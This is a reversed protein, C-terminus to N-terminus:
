QAAVLAKLEAKDADTLQRWESGFTRGDPHPGFFDQVDKITV